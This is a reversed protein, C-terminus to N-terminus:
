IRTSAPPRRWWSRPEMDREFLVFRGMAEAEEEEEEEEEAWEVATTRLGGYNHIKNPRQLVHHCYLQDPEDIPSIFCFCIIWIPRDRSPTRISSQSTSPESARMTLGRTTPEDLRRMITPNHSSYCAGCHTRGGSVKWETHTTQQM